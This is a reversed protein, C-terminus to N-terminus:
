PLRLVRTNKSELTVACTICLWFSSWRGFGCTWRIACDNGTYSMPNPLTNSHSYRAAQAKYLRDDSGCPSLSVRLLALKAQPSQKREEANTTCGTLSPRLTM